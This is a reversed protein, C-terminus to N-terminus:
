EYWKLYNNWVWFLHMLKWNNSFLLINQLFAKWDFAYWGQLVYIVFVNVISLFQNKNNVKIKLRSQGKIINSM